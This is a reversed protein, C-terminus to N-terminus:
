VHNSIEALKQELESLENRLFGIRNSQKPMRQILKLSDSLSIIKRVLRAKDVALSLSDLLHTTSAPETPPIPRSM